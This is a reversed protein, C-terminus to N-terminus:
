NKKSMTALILWVVLGKDEVKKGKCYTFKKQLGVLISLLQYFFSLFISLLFLFFIVFEIGPRTKVKCNQTRLNVLLFIRFSFKHESFQFFFSSIFVSLYFHFILYIVYIIIIFLYIFLKCFFSYICLIQFISILLLFNYHYYFLNIFLLICWIYSNSQLQLNM